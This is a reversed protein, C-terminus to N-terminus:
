RLQMVAEPPEIKVAAGNWTLREGGVLAGVPPRGEEALIIGIQGDTEIGNPGRKQDENYSLIGQIAWGKGEITIWIDYGGPEKQKAVQVPGASFREIRSAGRWPDLLAIFAAGYGKQRAIVLPVAETPPNGLGKGTFVEADQPLPMTLSLGVQNDLSFQGRFPGQFTVKALDTLMDYGNSKGLPSTLPTSTGNARLSGRAHLVWDCTHETTGLVRDMVLVCRNGLIGVCRDFLVGRYTTDCSFAALQFSPTCHLFDLLGQGPAQSKQDVVVTNHSLTQRYWKEQAPATELVSGPDICIERGQAYLVLGLKDYHGHWGGHTGYDMAVYIPEGGRSRLAVFGVDKFVATSLVPPSTLPTEAEGYLVPEIGRRPSLSLLWTFLPEDRYHARAIEYYWRGEIKDLPTDNIM